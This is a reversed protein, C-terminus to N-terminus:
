RGLYLVRSGYGSALSRTPSASRTALLSVGELAHRQMPEDMGRREVWAPLVDMPHFVCSIPQFLFM